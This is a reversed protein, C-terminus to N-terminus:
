LAKSQCCCECRLMEMVAKRIKRNRVGYIFPCVVSDLFILYIGAMRVIRSPFVGFAELTDMIFCPLWCFCFVFIILSITRTIHIDEGRSERTQLQHKSETANEMLATNKSLCVANSQDVYNIRQLHVTGELKNRTNFGRKRGNLVCRQKQSSFAFKVAVVGSRDECLGLHVNAHFKESGQGDLSNCSLEKFLKNSQKTNTDAEGAINFQSEEEKLEKTVVNELIRRRHGNVTRVIKVNCFIVIIIDLLMFTNATIKYSYSSNDTHCLATRTNFSYYGWGFLPPASSLTCIVWIFGLIKLVLRKDFTKRYRNPYCVLVYRSLSIATLTFLTLALLLYTQYGQIVCFLMSFTWKGRQLTWVFVPLITVALLFNGISLNMLFLNPITRLQKKRNMVFIMLFNGLAALTLITSALAVEIFVQTTTRYDLPPFIGNKKSPSATCNMDTSAMM